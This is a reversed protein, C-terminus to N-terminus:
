RLSSDDQLDYVLLPKRSIVQLFTPYLFDKFLQSISYDVRAGIFTRSVCSSLYIIWCHLHLYKRELLSQNDCLLIVALLLLSMSKLWVLLPHLPM